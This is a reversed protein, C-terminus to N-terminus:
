SPRTSISIMVSPVTGAVSCCCRVVKVRSAPTYLAILAGSPVSPIRVRFFVVAAIAIGGIDPIQRLELRQSSFAVRDGPVHDLHDLCGLKAANREVVDRGIDLDNQPLAQEGRGASKQKGSRRGHALM